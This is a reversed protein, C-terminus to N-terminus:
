GGVRDDTTVVAALEGDPNAATVGQKGADHSV